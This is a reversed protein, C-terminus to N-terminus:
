PEFYSRRDVGGVQLPALAAADDRNGRYDGHGGVGIAFAFDDPEM